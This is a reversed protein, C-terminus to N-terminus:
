GPYWVTRPDDAAREYAFAEDAMRALDYKPRWGLVFKAKGNDPRWTAAHVVCTVGAVSGRQVEVRESAPLERNHCLARVRVGAFRDDSLIRALFHRGVKGTAGTLLIL